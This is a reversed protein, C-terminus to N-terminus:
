KVDTIKTEFDLLEGIDQRYVFGDADEGLTELVHLAEDKDDAHILVRLTLTAYFKKSM